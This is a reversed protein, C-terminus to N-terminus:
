TFPKLLIALVAAASAIVAGTNVLFLKPNELLTPRSILRPEFGVAELVNSLQGLWGYRFWNVTTIFDYHYASDYHAIKNQAGRASRLFRLRSKQIERNNIMERVDHYGGSEKPFMLDFVPDAVITGSETKALVVTHVPTCEKCPYLMALSANIGIQELMAALLRSKDACDGGKELVQLPTAGLTKILYYDSNRVFGKNNYVFSNLVRVKDDLGSVDETMRGALTRLLTADKSYSYYFYVTLCSVMVSSVFCISFGLQAAVGHM